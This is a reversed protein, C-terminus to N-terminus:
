EVENRLLTIIAHQVAWCTTKPASDTKCAEKNTRSNYAYATFTNVGTNPDIRRMICIGIGDDASEARKIAEVRVIREDEGNPDSAATWVTTNTYVISGYLIRQEVEHVVTMVREDKEAFLDTTVLRVWFRKLRQVDPAFLRDLENEISKLENYEEQTSRMPISETREIDFANVGNFTCDKSFQLLYYRILHTFDLYVDGTLSCSPNGPYVARISDFAADIGKTFKHANFEHVTLNVM